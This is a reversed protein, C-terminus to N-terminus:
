SPPRRYRDALSGPPLAKPRLGLERIMLRFANQLAGYTRGDHDTVDGDTFKREFLELRLAIRALRDILLKETASPSGGVHETLDRRIAAM